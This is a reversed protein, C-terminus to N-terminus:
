HKVCYQHINGFTNSRSICNIFLGFAVTSTNFTSHQDQLPSIYHITFTTSHIAINHHMVVPHVIMSPYLDGAPTFSEPKAEQRDNTSKRKDCM